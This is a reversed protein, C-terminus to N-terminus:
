SSQKKSQKIGATVALRMAQERPMDIFTLRSRPIYVTYGGIQYSMPLYVAVSETSVMNEPMDSFEDRTIFGLVRVDLQPFDVMVVQFSEGGNEGAFLGFFEKLASYITKVLPVKLFLKETLSFVSRILYARMLIGIAFVAGCGVLLGMGTVYVGAPLLTKLPDGMLAEASSFLWVLLYITALVPLVTFLGTLFIRSLFNLM